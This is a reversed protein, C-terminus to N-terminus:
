KGLATASIQYIKALRAKMMFNWSMLGPQRDNLLDLLKEAERQLEDLDIGSQKGEGQPKGM